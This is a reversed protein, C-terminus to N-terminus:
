VDVADHLIDICITGHSEDEHFPGLLEFRLIPVAYHGDEGGALGPLEFVVLPAVRGLQEAMYGADINTPTTLLRGLADAVPAM